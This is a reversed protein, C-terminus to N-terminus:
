SRPGEVHMLDQLAPFYACHEKETNAPPLGYQRGWKPFTAAFGGSSTGRGGQASMMWLATGGGDAM